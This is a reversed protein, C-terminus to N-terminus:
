SAQHKELDDLSENWCPPCIGSQLIEREDATLDPIDTVFGEGRKWKDYAIRDVLIPENWDNHFPCFIELRIKGNGMDTRRTTAM